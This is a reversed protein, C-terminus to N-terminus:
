ECHDAGQKKWKAFYKPFEKIDVCLAEEKKWTVYCEM